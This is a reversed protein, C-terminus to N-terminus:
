RRRLAAPTGGFYVVRNSFPGPMVGDPNISIFWSSYVQFQFYGLERQRQEKNQPHQNEPTVFVLSLDGRRLGRRRSGGRGARDGHGRVVIEDPHDIGVVVRDRHDVNLVVGVLLDGLNRDAVFGVVQGNRGVSLGDVDRVSDAARHRDDIRCAPLYDSRNRDARFRVSDRKGGIACLEVDSVRPGIVDRNNGGGGVGDEPRDPKLGRDGTGTAGGTGGARQEFWAADGDGAVAISNVGVLLDIDGLEVPHVTRSREDAGIIVFFSADQDDGGGGVSDDPCDDERGHGV